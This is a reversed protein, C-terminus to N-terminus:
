NGGPGGVAPRVPAQGRASSAPSAGEAKRREAEHWRKWRSIRELTNTAPNASDQSVDRGVVKPLSELAVFQVGLGDDLMGVLVDVFAPDGLAGMAAAADRRTQPDADHALREMALVGSPAGLRVLSEAAALRLERDNEGLLRELPKVDAIMGPRGLAKVATLVVSRQSDELAPLLQAAHLPDRFTALHECAMRRVEGSAHSMGAYALRISPERPDNAVAQMLSNWVLVDDEGVGLEALRALALASLPRHKAQEALKAAAQRRELPNVAALRDLADYEAGRKALVERYVVDPLVVHEDAVLRELVPVLDSGFEDLDRLAWSIAGGTPPAEQLRRIIDKAKELREPSISNSSGGGENRLPNAAALDALVHSEGWSRRLAALMEARREAPADVTFDAAPPWREALQAAAAKRTVYGGDEMASLLVPGAADLPWKALSEIMRKQVEVSSDKIL